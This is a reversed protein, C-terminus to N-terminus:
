RPFCVRQAVREVGTRTGGGACETIRDFGRGGVFRGGNQMRVTDRGRDGEFRGGALYNVRDRGHGGIFGGAFLTGVRDAGPGGVIRVPGDATRVIDNGGGELFVGAMMITVRDNGYGGVFRAAPYRTATAPNGEALDLDSGLVGVRDAGGHGLFTGMVRDVSDDGPGGCVTMGDLVDGSGDIDLLNRTDGSPDYGPQTTMDHDCEAAAAVGPIAMVVVTLLLSRLISHGHRPASMFPDGTTLSTSPGLDGGARAQRVPRALPM